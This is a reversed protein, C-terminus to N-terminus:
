NNYRESLLRAIAEVLDLKKDTECIVDIKLFALDTNLDDPVVWFNVESGFVYGNLFGQAYNKATVDPIGGSKRAKRWEDCSINGKLTLGDKNKRTRSKQELSSLRTVALSVGESAAKELWYRARTEDRQVGMGRQTQDDLYAAGLYWASESHGARAAREFYHLKQMYLDYYKDGTEDSRNLLHM